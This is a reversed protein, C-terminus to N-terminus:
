VHGRPGPILTNTIKIYELYEPNDKHREELMPVGSFRTLLYTIVIPTLIGFGWYDLGFSSLWMGWWFLIEGFYNPHRSYKWLGDRMVKVKKIKSKKFQFLQYDAVSEYVVGFFAVGFGFLNMAGLSLQDLQSAGILLTSSTVFSVLMQIYFIRFLVNTLLSGSWGKALKLYRPDDPAGISRIFLYASLRFAWVTVFGVYVYGPISIKIGSFVIFFLLQILHIPGWFLDIVAIKKTLIYSLFFISMMVFTGAWTTALNQTFFPISEL